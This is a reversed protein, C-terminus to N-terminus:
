RVHRGTSTLARLEDAPAGDLARLEVMVARVVADIEDPASGPTIHSRLVAWAAMAPTASGPLGADLMALFMSAAERGSREAATRGIRELTSNLSSEHM